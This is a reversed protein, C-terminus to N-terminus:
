ARKRNSATAMSGGQFRELVTVALSRKPRDTGKVSTAKVVLLRVSQPVDDDVGTVVEILDGTKIDHRNAFYGPALVDDISDVTRLTWCTWPGYGEIRGFEHHEVEVPRGNPRFREVDGM